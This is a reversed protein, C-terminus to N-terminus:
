PAEGFKQAGRNRTVPRVGSEFEAKLAEGGRDVRGVGVVRNAKRGKQPVTEITSRGNCFTESGDSTWVTWSSQSPWSSAASRAGLASQYRTQRSVKNSRQYGPIRDYSSSRASGFVLGADLADRMASSGRFM